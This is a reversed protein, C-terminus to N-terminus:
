GDPGGTLTEDRLRLDGAVFTACVRGYVERGAFPCNRGKSRFTEPEVRWKAGPDFVVVDAASGVELTGGPLGLLRAPQWSMRGILGGLTLAGSRVLETLSVALATELGIVGFPAQDLPLAKEGPSHPAHDTAILDITGDLIAERVAAVDTPSKLPPNVKANAGFQAITSSDLTFYHPATEASVLAGTAKLSRLAQVGLASSLHALHLRPPRPATAAARGYAAAWLRIAAAEALTAQTAVGPAHQAASADVSGGASLGRLECHAIFPLDADAARLLAEVMDESRQLPFADDTIAVCGANRLAVFDAFVENRNDLTAAGIPLVRCAAGEAREVLDSVREPRDIVPLTNPMACVTAFGGAVAAASGTGLTEKHEFGPARLHVHVDILGPAVVMGTADLVSADAPPEARGAREIRGDVILLDSAGDLGSAPDILRGGRILWTGPASM